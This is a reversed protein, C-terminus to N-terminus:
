PQGWMDHKKCLLLVRLVRLHVVLKERYTAEENLGDQIRTGISVRGGLNTSAARALGM